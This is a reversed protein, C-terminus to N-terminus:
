NGHKLSRLRPGERRKGSFLFFKFLDEPAAGKTKKLGGLMSSPLSISISSRAGRQSSFFKLPRLIELRWLTVLRYGRAPIFFRFLKRRLPCGSRSSAEKDTLSNSLVKGEKKDTLRDQKGSSVVCEWSSSEELIYSKLGVFELDQWPAIPISM